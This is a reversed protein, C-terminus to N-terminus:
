SPRRTEVSRGQFVAAYGNSGELKLLHAKADLGGAFGTLKGSFGILRHCPIIIAIPNRGNAAGVARAAKPNGLQNALQGYTLANTAVREGLVELPLADGSPTVPGQMIKVTKFLGNCDCLLEVLYLHLSRHSDVGAFAAGILFGHSGLGMTILGPNIALEREFIQKM